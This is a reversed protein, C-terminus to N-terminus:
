STSCGNFDGIIIHPINIQSLSPLTFQENPPTYMLHVALGHMVVNGNSSVSNHKVNLGTIFASAYTNHPGEVVLPMGAINSMALYPDINTFPAFRTVNLDITRM